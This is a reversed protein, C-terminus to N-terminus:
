RESYYSQICSYQINFVYEEDNRIALQLHRPIIRKKMTTRTVNGSLELIEATLYELVAALYVPNYTLAPFSQFSYSCRRIYWSSRCRYASCLSGEKLYPPNSRCPVPPRGQGVPLAIKRNHWDEQKSFSQQIKRSSPTLCHIYPFPLQFTRVQAPSYNM